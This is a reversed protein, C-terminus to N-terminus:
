RGKELEFPKWPSQQGSRPLACASIPPFLIILFKFAIQKVQGPYPLYGRRGTRQAWLHAPLLGWRGFAIMETSSVFSKHPFQPCHKGVPLPFPIVSSFSPVTLFFIPKGWKWLHPHLQVKPPPWAPHGRCGVDSSIVCHNVHLYVLHIRNVKDM